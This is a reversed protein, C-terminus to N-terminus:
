GKGNMARRIHVTKQCVIDWAKDLYDSEFDEEPLESELDKRIVELFQVIFFRRKIVQSM